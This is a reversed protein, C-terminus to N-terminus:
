AKALRWERCIWWNWHKKSLNQAIINLYSVEM